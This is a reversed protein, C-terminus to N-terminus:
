KECAYLLVNKVRWIEVLVLRCMSALEVCFRSNHRCSVVKNLRGPLDVRRMDKSKLAAKSVM